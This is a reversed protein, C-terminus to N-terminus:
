LIPFSKLTMLLHFVIFAVSAALVPWVKAALGASFFAVGPLIVMAYIVANPQIGNFYLVWFVWYLAIAIFGVLAPRNRHIVNPVTKNVLFLLLVIIAVRSIQEGYEIILISSATGQLRNITPPFLAWIVNPLLQLSVILLGYFSLRIRLNKTGRM